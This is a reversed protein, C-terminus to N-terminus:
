LLPPKHGEVIFHSIPSGTMEGPFASDVHLM